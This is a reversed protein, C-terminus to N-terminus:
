SIELKRTPYKTLDALIIFENTYEISSNRWSNTFVKALEANSIKFDPIQQTLENLLALYFLLQPGPLGSNTNNELLLQANKLEPVCITIIKGSSLKATTSLS